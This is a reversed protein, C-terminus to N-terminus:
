ASRWLRGLLVPGFHLSVVSIALWSGLIRFSLDNHARPSSHHSLLGVSKDILQSFKKLENTHGGNYAPDHKGGNDENNV